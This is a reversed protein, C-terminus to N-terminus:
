YNQNKNGKKKAKREEKEQKEKDIIQQITLAALRLEQIATNKYKDLIGETLTITPEKGIIVKSKEIDYSVQSLANEIWFNKTKDEVMDFAKEYIYVDIMDEGELKVEMPLSTKKVKIVDKKSSEMDFVNIEVYKGIQGCETSNAVNKVLQVYEESANRIKAM